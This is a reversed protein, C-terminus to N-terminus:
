IWVMSNNPLTKFSHQIYYLKVKHFLVKLLIPYFPFLHQMFNNLGSLHYPLKQFDQTYLILHVWNNLIYNWNLFHVSRTEKWLKM